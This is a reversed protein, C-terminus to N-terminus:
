AGTDYLVQPAYRPRTFVRNEITFEGLGIDVPPDYKLATEVLIVRENDSMVPLRDGLDLVDGNNLASRFGREESWDLYHRNDDDDWRVVTIRLSVDSNVNTESLYKMLDRMGVMYSNDLPITERSIIDGITFAVKQQVAHMRYVEFTAFMTVFATVYLPIMLVTEITISGEERRSFGRLFSTINHLLGRM